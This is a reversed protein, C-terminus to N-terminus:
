RPSRSSLASSVTPSEVGAYLSAVRAARTGRKRRNEVELCIGRKDVVRDTLGGLCISHYGFTVPECEFEATDAAPKREGAHKVSKPITAVSMAGPWVVVHRLNMVYGQQPRVTSHLGSVALGARMPNKLVNPPTVHPPAPASPLKGIKGAPSSTIHVGSNHKM